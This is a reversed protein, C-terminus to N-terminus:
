ATPPPEVLRTEKRHPEPALQVDPDQAKPLAPAPALQDEPNPLVAPAMGDEAKPLSPQPDAGPAMRDEAKPLSPQPDAQIGVAAPGPLTTKKLILDDAFQM